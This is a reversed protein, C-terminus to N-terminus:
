LQSGSLSSVIGEVSESSPDSWKKITMVQFQYVCSRKILCVINAPGMLERRKAASMPVLSASSLATMRYAYVVFVSVLNWSKVCGMGGIITWM